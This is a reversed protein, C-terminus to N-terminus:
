MEHLARRMARNLPTREHTPMEPWIEPQTALLDSTLGEILERAVAYDARTVLRLWYSSIRPSLFPVELMLPNSGREAAIHELIERATLVEPGPLDRIASHSLSRGAAHTLAAAVDHIDVPQSRTKLWQPLIMMPLRSLDCCIQWSESGAGVIMGARLELTPVEGERLVRGTELRSQLHKSPPGAPEVGGLYVIHRVGAGAAARSLNRAARREVEAYDGETHSGMAHVLYLVVDIDELAPGLTSPDDVDLRVWSRAHGPAGGGEPFLQAAREPNRSACRVEFGADILRPYVRSGVFGTAGTLLVRTTM